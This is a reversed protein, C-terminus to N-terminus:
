PSLKNLKQGFEYIKSLMINIVKYKNIIEHRESISLKLLKMLLNIDKRLTEISNNNNNRYEFLKFLVENQNLVFWNFNLDKKHDIFINNIWSKFTNIYNLENRETKGENFKYDNFDKITITKIKPQKNYDLLNVDSLFGNYINNHEIIQKKGLEQAQDKLNWVNNNFINKLNTTTNNKKITLEKYNSVNSYKNYFEQKVNEPTFKSKSM